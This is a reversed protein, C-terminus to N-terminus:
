AFRSIRARLTSLARGARRKAARFLGLSPRDILFWRLFVQHRKRQIGFALSQLESELEVFERFDAANLEVGIAKAIQRIMVRGSRRDLRRSLDNAGEIKSLFNYIARIVVANLRIRKAWIWEQDIIKYRDPAAYVNSWICDVYEGALYKVDGEAVSVGNLLQVWNGCPQFITELDSSKSMCRLYVVTQLSYSDIWVSDTDVLKLMSGGVSEVGGLSRKSVVMQNDADKFIRTRTRFQVQRQSSFIIALQEFSIGSLQSKGAVVLFSNAFFPLMRNRALELSVSVEDWLAPMEGAYDRSKMQSVLEGAQQTSLFEDALVCDPLKYDPYPYYFRVSSFYKKLNTELEEKGFTRVKGPHRHYGELGEFRVGLHDERSSTFYKLGFQNEIAIVVVGDPTLMDNFYRLVEDYPDTGGVFSASYEYVGVCFIIDFKRAFRIQQFPACVISVGQLDRTRLRALRARNISGEISVVDDFTEGLYRTIAGCGGGVELVKHSRDFKFGSLVQARRTTLHYESPWDKIYGELENSTSSLDRAQRLVNALYKESEVGDSYGFDRHEKLVWLSPGDEILENEVVSQISM